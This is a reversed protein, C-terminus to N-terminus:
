LPARGAALAAELEGKLRAREDQYRRWEEPTTEQERGAYEADLVALRHLLAERVPIASPAAVLPARFVRRLVVGLAVAVIGVLLPLLWAPTGAIGPLTIRVVGDGPVSGTWRRFTRGLVVQTDARALGPGTVVAGPDEILVNLAAAGEGVPVAVVRMAGPLHYSLTLQKEGPGIPAALLLSDNRRGIADSSVDSEGAELGDSGPPLPMSWSSSLTDRAVRARQGENRLVLLELVERGGDEGARPIIVHRAALTVPATSSTDYVFLTLGTDAAAASAPVPQSFYEIGRYRASLLYVTGSDARFRFNFRGQRDALTSDLPGQADNGVRHLVVRLGPMAATGTGDPRVVRGSATGQAAAQGPPVALTCALAAALAAGGARM